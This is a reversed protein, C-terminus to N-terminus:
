IPTTSMMFVSIMKDALSSTLLDAVSVVKDDISSLPSFVTHTEYLQSASLESAKLSKSLNWALTLM